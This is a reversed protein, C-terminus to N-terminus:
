SLTNILMLMGLDPERTIKTAEELDIAVIESGLIGMALNKRDSDILKVAEAGLKTALIRDNSTSNGGRQVYGLIVQRCEEGTEMEIIKMLDENKINAGEAKIIISHRKNRSISQKIKGVVKDVDIEMEPILICDAGGAVGVHLAIDGCNRGMVEILSTRDHSSGTDRVKSVASLATNVATDFGITFDTYGMDNDITAPLVFINVGLKAFEKAGKLSGDGGIVVIANLGFENVTNLAKKRGEETRFEESRATKLITGGRHIIDAVSNINMKKLDCGILGDYGYEIGYVEYNLNLASRVIARIAANMGPADGGSTLIGIKRM